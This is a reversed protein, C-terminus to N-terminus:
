SIKYVKNGESVKEKTKLGFSDGKKVEEVKAHEVEMSDIKQTFSGGEGREIFIEDGVKLTGNTMNMVAVSIGGYFHEIVGVEKANEPKEVM